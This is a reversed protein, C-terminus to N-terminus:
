APDGALAADVAACTRAITARMADITGKMQEISRELEPLALELAEEDEDATSPSAIYRSTADRVVHGVSRGSSAAFADLAAKHDPTTLFTVRETQM